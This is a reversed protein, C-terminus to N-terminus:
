NIHGPIGLEGPALAARIKNPNQLVRRSLGFGPNKSFPSNRGTKYDIKYNTKKITASVNRDNLNHTYLAIYDPKLSDPPECDTIWNLELYTDHNASVTLHVSGCKRRSYSGPFYDDDYYNNM